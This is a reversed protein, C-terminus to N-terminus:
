LFGSFKGVLQILRYCCSSSFEYFQMWVTCSISERNKKYFNLKCGMSNGERIKGSGHSQGRLKRLIYLILKTSTTVGKRFVYTPMGFAILATFNYLVPSSCRLSCQLVMLPIKGRCCSRLILAHAGRINGGHVALSHTDGFHRKTLTSDNFKKKLLSVRCCDDVLSKTTHISIDAHTDATDSPPHFMKLVSVRVDGILRATTSRSSSCSLTVLLFDVLEDSLVSIYCASFSCRLKSHPVMRDLLHHLNQSIPFNTGM